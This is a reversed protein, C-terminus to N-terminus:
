RSNTSINQAPTVGALGAGRRGLDTDEDMSPHPEDVDRRGREEGAGADIVKKRAEASPM